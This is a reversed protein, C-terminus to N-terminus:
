TEPAPDEPFFHMHLRTVVGIGLIFLLGAPILDLVFGFYIVSSLWNFATSIVMLFAGLPFFLTWFHGDTARWVDRFPQPRGVSLAPLLLSIRLVLGYYMADFLSIAIGVPASIPAPGGLAFYQRGDATDFSATVQLIWVLPITLLLSLVGMIVITIMYRPLTALPIRPVIWTSRESLIVRRHWAIAAWSMATFALLISVAAGWLWWIVVISLVVTLLCILAGLPDGLIDDVTQRVIRAALRM